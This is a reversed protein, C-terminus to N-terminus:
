FQSLLWLLCHWPIARNTPINFIMASVEITYKGNLADIAALCEVRTSYKIFGCGPRLYPLSRSNLQSPLGKSTGDPGRIIASEEVKGYRGFLARLNEDSTTYSLMGIFLKREEGKNDGDAPRVQMAGNAQLCQSSIM